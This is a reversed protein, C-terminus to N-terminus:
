TLSMKGVMLKIYIWLHHKTDNDFRNTCMEFSGNIKSFLITEVIHVLRRTSIIENCREYFDKM